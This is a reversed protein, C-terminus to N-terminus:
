GILYRRAGGIVVENNQLTVTADQHKLLIKDDDLLIQKNADPGPGSAPPDFMGATNMKGLTLSTATGAIGFGPTTPYSVPGFGLFGAPSAAGAGAGLYFGQAGHLFLKGDTSNVQVDGKGAVFVKGASSVEASTRGNMKVSGLQSSLGASLTGGIATFLGGISMIALSSLSTVATASVQTVAMSTVSTVLGSHLTATQAGYASVASSGYLSVNGGPTEGQIAKVVGYVGAGVAALKLCMAIWDTAQAGQWGIRGETPSRAFQLRFVEEILYSAGLGAAVIAAIIDAVHEAEQYGVWDGSGDIVADSDENQLIDAIGSRDALIHVDGPSGITVTRHGALRLDGASSGILNNGWSEQYSGGETIMAFGNWENFPPAYASGIGTPTRVVNLAPNGYTGSARVVTAPAGLRVVTRATSGPFRGAPADGFTHFHVHHETQAVFGLDVQVPAAENETATTGTVTARNVSEGMNVTVRESPIWITFRNPGNPDFDDPTAPPTEPNFGADFASITDSTELEFVSM